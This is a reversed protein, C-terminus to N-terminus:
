EWCVAESAQPFLLTSFLSLGGSVTEIICMGQLQRATGQLGESGLIWVAFFQLRTKPSSPNLQFGMM